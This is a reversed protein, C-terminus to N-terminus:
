RSPNSRAAERAERATAVDDVVVAIHRVSTILSGYVPWLEGPPLGDRGSFRAALARLRDYVPEVEADPDKITRGADGVIQAWESRFTEDWKSQDKASERLTRAMHRLHSVGETIRILIEEYGVDRAESDHAGAGQRQSTPLYRRPNMHASERAFRVSQWASELQQDIAVTQAVWGDASDTDWSGQLESSMDILIDGMRRNMSDVYRSAQQDRLPPILLLNVVVGVAVGVGVEVLRDILLPEQSEFGSGLVFIATTAIAVGETRIWTLRSGALGVLIALAFTWLSVGLFAGVVFSLAVGLSSAVTTQVGRALSRYVTAHVTLLATWPALFPLESDLVSVSLWWAATTAVVCKLIQVADTVFEPSRLATSVRRRRHATTQDKSVVNIVEERARV